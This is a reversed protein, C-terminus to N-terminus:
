ERSENSVICVNYKLFAKDRFPILTKYEPSKFVMDIARYSPYNVLLVIEASKEGVVPAGLEIRQVIEAGVRQMLMSAMDFYHQLADPENPNVTLSAMVQVM